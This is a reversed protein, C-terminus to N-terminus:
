VHVERACEGKSVSLTALSTDVPCDSVKAALGMRRPARELYFM